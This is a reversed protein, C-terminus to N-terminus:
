GTAAFPTTQRPFSGASKHEELRSTGSLRHYPIAFHGAGPESSVLIKIDGPIKAQQKGRVGWTISNVANM